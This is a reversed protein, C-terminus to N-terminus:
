PQDERRLVAALLGMGGVLAFLLPAFTPPGMEANYRALKWGGPRKRCCSTAPSVAPAAVKASELKKMTDEVDAAVWGAGTLTTKIADRSVGAKIQANIYDVIQEQVM